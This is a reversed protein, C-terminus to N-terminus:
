VRERAGNSEVFSSARRRGGGNAARHHGVGRQRDHVIRGIRQHGQAFWVAGVIILLVGFIRRVWM